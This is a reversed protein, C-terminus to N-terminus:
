KNEDLFKQIAMRSSKSISLRKHFAYRRLQEYLRADMLTVVRKLNEVTKQTEQEATM